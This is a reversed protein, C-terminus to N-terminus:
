EWTPPNIGGAKREIENRVENLNLKNNRYQYWLNDIAEINQQQKFTKPYLGRIAEWTISQMERPLIGREKAARRYADVYLGYIGKVGTISSNKMAANWDKPRKLLEPSTGFNHFVATSNASLPRLQAAAVAHTDITVEGIQSNPNIINNYFSRVKHKNGMLKSIIKVDGGSEYSAVAKAIMPFSSWAASANEGKDTKVNDIFDGEPTLQKFSRDNYTEDYIRLWIAKKIPTDLDSLKKNSIKSLINNFKKPIIEKAKKRMQKDFIFNQKNSLIDLTRDALSLNVFWDKQPSLAAIVGAVSQNNSNYKKAWDNTLKNAGDYWLKSRQRTKEPVKDYLWLINDKAHNIYTEATEDSSKKIEDVRLNPYDKIVSVNNDFIKKNSKIENLGIDLMENIPDAEPKVATPFRGSIQLETNTPQVSIPKQLPTEDAQKLIDQALEGKPNISAGVSFKDLLENGEKKLTDLSKEIEEPPAKTKINKLVVAITPVLAEVPLDALVNKLRGVFDSDNPDTMLKRIMPYNDPDAGMAMVADVLNEDTGEYATFTSGLSRVAEKGFTGLKGVQTGVKGIAMLKGLGLYSGFFKAGEYGFNAFDFDPNFETAQKADQMFKSDEDVILALPNVIGGEFLGKGIGELVEGGKKLDEKTQENLTFREFLSQVGEKVQSDFTDVFTQERVTTLGNEYSPLLTQGSQRLEREEIFLDFLDQEKAM